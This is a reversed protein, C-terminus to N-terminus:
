EVQFENKLYFFKNKHLNWSLIKISHDTETNPKCIQLENIEFINIIHKWFDLTKIVTETREKERESGKTVIVKLAHPKGRGLPSGYKNKYM